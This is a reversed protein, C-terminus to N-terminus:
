VSARDAKRPKEAEDTESRAKLGFNILIPGNIIISSYMGVISGFTMAITFSRIVEGGFLVLPILALLVTFQTLSTRVITQNISLDILDPLPMKRHKRLNERIRDSVVVTENLSLGVLTLVAAISTLNFELGTISFLGITMIVDHTTTTVAALAFQWEFRVWIYILIAGLAILVAITGKWALEGSVTGSVAETRRLEYNDSALATRIKSVAAQDADQGGEQAQVRVLVDEPTGFGQVQVEGLNLGDLLERVKGVDAPGGVHQVEIATGGVFDIGLNFGKFYASGISALSAVISFAIVYRSIKMFPIKTGDPIFRFHQIRLTKPRRLGYWLKVQYSTVTYSTFLSTLIGLALTVAFGQVPGSGMFYLVIAAILQTLHSDIITGWAREFGANIAQIPSKGARQEERMREYILVNADVAMGITLVIGAIGPLTLTAGLMSLAGFILIINLVLSVNAFVGWLGYAVVMFTVVLIGAVIGATLGSRISDAGLSADVTREEVVDLSAPLAGARLLVALDNATQPTFSGSIQGSGGTIPQQIVPATLVQNDLVIAFRKGVNKSTIDSFTVAGRTDFKFSVVSRGTQQDFGPQADTLSEGGLAVDEYILEKGGDQSPLVITGAPLGQAEAQAASMGPYVMHFTLRATRSIIDKLRQSDGFGPVQVLVRNTGQRQIQPETTGLEDVRKRIVEISQAVLASMRQEVGEPTLTITLKGDPTEGFSLENVGGVALLSNGITNQLSQIASRAAEKQSPDTLEITLTNTAADTTTINGIGNQNALVNRVDRRLSQLRETVIGEQNVQLLLHSGGQLDLGLVVTQRPLFGPWSERVNEPLFSPIAFLVGLLAVIAIIATRIPSFQM